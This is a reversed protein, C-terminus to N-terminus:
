AEARGLLSEAQGRLLLGGSCLGDEGCDEGGADGRAVRCSSVGQSSTVSPKSAILM